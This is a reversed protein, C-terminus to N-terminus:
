VRTACRIKGAKVRQDPRQESRLDVVQIVALTALEESDPALGTTYYRTKARFSNMPRGGANAKRVFCSGRMWSLSKPAAARFILERTREHTPSRLLFNGLLSVTVSSLFELDIWQPPPSM